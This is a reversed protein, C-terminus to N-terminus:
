FVLGLGWFILAGGGIRAIVDGRPMLKEALVISSLMAITALNMVGSVFLVAMLAWCCGICYKGHSLGM